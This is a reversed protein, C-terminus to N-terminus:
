WLRWAAFFFLNLYTESNESMELRGFKSAGYESFHVVGNGLVLVAIL